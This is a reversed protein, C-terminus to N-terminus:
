QINTMLRFISPSLSVVDLANWERHSAILMVTQVTGTVLGAGEMLVRLALLHNATETQKIQVASLATSETPTIIGTASEAGGIGRGDPLEV